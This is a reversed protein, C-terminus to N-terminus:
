AAGAAPRRFDEIYDRTFEEFMMPYIGTVDEMTTTIRSGEGRRYTEYDELVGDAQWVSMGLDLLVHRMSDPSIEVYKVNTGTEESLIEAMDSHTLAEPGTIEYTKGEHGPETLALVAMTAIDRADVISV